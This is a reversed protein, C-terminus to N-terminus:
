SKNTVACRGITSFMSFIKWQSYWTCPQLDLYRLWHSLRSIMSFCGVFLAGVNNGSAYKQYNRKTSRCLYHTITNPIKARVGLIKRGNYLANIRGCRSYAIWADEGMRRTTGYRFFSGSSITVAVDTSVNLNRSSACHCDRKGSTGRKGTGWYERGYKNWETM